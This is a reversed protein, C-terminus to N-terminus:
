RSMCLTTYSLVKMLLADNGAVAKNLIQQADDLSQQQLTRMSSSRTSKTGCQRLADLSKNQVATPLPILDGRTPTQSCEEMFYQLIDLKTKVLCPITLADPRCHASASKM